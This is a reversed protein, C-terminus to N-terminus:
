AGSVPRGGVPGTRLGSPSARISAAPLPLFHLERLAGSALRPPKRGHPRSSEMSSTAPTLAPASRDAECLRTDRFLRRVGGDSRRLRRARLRDGRGSRGPPRGGSVAAPWHQRFGTSQQGRFRLFPRVSPRRRTRVQVAGLATVPVLGGRFSPTCRHSPRGSRTSPADAFGGPLAMRFASRLLAPIRQVNKMVALERVLIRFQEAGDGRVPMLEPVVGPAM